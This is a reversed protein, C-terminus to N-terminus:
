LCNFTQPVKYALLLDPIFSNWVLDPKDGTLPSRHQSLRLHQGPPTSCILTLGM